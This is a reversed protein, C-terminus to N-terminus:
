FYEGVLDNLQEEDEIRTFDGRIVKVQRQDYVLWVRGFYILELIEVLDVRLGLPQRLEQGRVLVFGVSGTALSRRVSQQLPGRGAALHARDSESVSELQRRAPQGELYRDRIQLPHPLTAEILGLRDCHRVVAVSSDLPANVHGLHVPNTLLTNELDAIAGHNREYVV